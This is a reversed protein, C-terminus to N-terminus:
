TRENQPETALPLTQLWTEADAKLVVIKAGIRRAPLAGRRVLAYITSRSVASKHALDDVAYALLPDLM